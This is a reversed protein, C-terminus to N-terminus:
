ASEQDPEPVEQKERIPMDAAVVMRFHIRALHAATRHLWRMADLRMAIEHMTAPVPSAHSIVDMRFAEEQRRILAEMRAYRAARATDDLDGTGSILSALVRGLRRLRRDHPLISLREDNECRRLLRHLHDLVHLLASIRNRVRSPSPTPPIGAVFDTLTELAQRIRELDQDPVRHRSLGTLAARVHHELEASVARACATAADCAAPADTLLRKDLIGTLSPARDPVLVEMFRAFAGAFPLVLVVGLVNFVTHFAVLAFQEDGPGHIRPAAVASFLDLLFFALIGTGLNFVVHAVGTRRVAASGGLTALVADFTTGVNMGIVMAAAQPLSITGVALATLATAVGASSSHTVLTIAVGLAVLELRGAITGSSLSDLTFLGEFGAMGRQMTDVGIFLLSFGALAEGAQRWRGPAFMTAVVGIVLLPMAILGLELKFGIAAIIWGTATTGINAGLVIGLAQSFTLFGAGVLGVATVTTASSSQIIATLVAGTAAGTTANTTFRALLRRLMGGALGRLGGTLMRIGLLFLGVGGLAILVDDIM